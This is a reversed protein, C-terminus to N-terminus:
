EYELVKGVGELKSNIEDLTGYKAMSKKKVWMSPSPVPKKGNGGEDFLLLYLVVMISLSIGLILNVTFIAHTSSEGTEPNTDKDLIVGGIFLYLCGGVQAIANLLGAVAAENAPASLVAAYEFGVSLFATFFFGVLGTLVFIGLVSSSNLVVYTFGVFSFIAGILIWKCVAYFNGARDLVYGSLISGVAGVMIFCVGLLGVLVAGRESDEKWAPLFQSLFTAVAYYVGVVFGYVITLVLGGKYDYVVRKISEVYDLSEHTEETAPTSDGAPEEHTNNKASSNTVFLYVMVAAGLSFVFQVLLYGELSGPVTINIFMTSGLGFAAGLQNALVGVSTAVAHEEKRFHAHSLLPPIALTFTQAISCLVTGIYVVSYSEYRIWRLLAGFTNLVAGLVLGNRMGIKNNVLYLSPFSLPIYLYMFVMSLADVESSTVGWLLEMDKAIPSWTIWIWSNSITLMAFSFLVLHRTSRM